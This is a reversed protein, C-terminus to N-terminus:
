LRFERMFNGFKRQRAEVEDADGSAPDPSVGGSSRLERLEATARDFDGEVDPLAAMGRRKLEANVLEIQEPSFTMQRVQERTLGQSALFRDTEQIRLDVSEVAAKSDAITKKIRAIYEDIEKEM